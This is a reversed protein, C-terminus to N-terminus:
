ASKKAVEKRAAVRVIRLLKGSDNVFRVHGAESFWIAAIGEFAFRVGFYFRECCILQEGLLKPDDFGLDSLTAAVLERVKEM